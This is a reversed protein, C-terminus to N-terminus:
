SGCCVTYQKLCLLHQQGTSPTGALQQQKEYWAQLLKGLFESTIYGISPL